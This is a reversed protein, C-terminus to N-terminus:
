RQSKGGGGGAFGGAGDEWVLIGFDSAGLVARLVAGADFHVGKNWAPQGKQFRAKIGRHQKWESLSMQSLVAKIMTTYCCRYQKQLQCITAQGERLRRAIKAADAMVKKGNGRCIGM